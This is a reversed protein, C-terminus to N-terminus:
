PWGLGDIDAWGLEVWDVYALAEWALGTWVLGPWTAGARGGPWGLGYCGLLGIGAWAAGATWELGALEPVRATALM